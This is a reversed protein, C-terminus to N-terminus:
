SIGTLAVQFQTIASRFSHGATGLRLISVVRSAVSSATGTTSIPQPQVPWHRPMPVRLLGNSVRLWGRSTVLLDFDQRTKRFPTSAIQQRLRIVLLPPVMHDTGRLDRPLRAM